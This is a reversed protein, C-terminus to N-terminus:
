QKLFCQVLSKIKSRRSKLLEIEVEIAQLRRQLAEHIIRPVTEPVSVNDDGMESLLEQECKKQADRRLKKTPGPAKIKDPERKNTSSPPLIRPRKERYVKMENMTVTLHLLRAAYFGGLTDEDGRWDAQHLESTDFAAENRSNFSEIESCKLIATTSNCVYQVFPFM